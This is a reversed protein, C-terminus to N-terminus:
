SVKGVEILQSASADVDSNCGTVVVPIRCVSARGSSGRSDGYACRGDCVSTGTEAVETGNDIDKSGTLADGTRPDSTRGRRVRDRARRHRCRM